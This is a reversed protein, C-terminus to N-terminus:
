KEKLRPDDSAICKFITEFSERTGAEGLPGDDPGIASLRNTLREILKSRVKM